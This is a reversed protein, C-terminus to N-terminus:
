FFLVMIHVVIDKSASVEVCSLFTKTGLGVTDGTKLKVSLLPTSSVTDYESKTPEHKHYSLMRDRLVFFRKTRMGASQKKMPWKLVWGSKAVARTWEFVINHAITYFSPSITQKLSGIIIHSKHFKSRLILTNHSVSYSTIDLADLDISCDGSLYMDDDQCMEDYESWGINSPLNTSSSYLCESRTKKVAFIVSSQRVEPVNSAKSLSFIYGAKSNNREPTVLNDVETTSKIPTSNDVDDTLDIDEVSYNPSGANGAEPMLFLENAKVLISQVDLVSNDWLSPRLTVDDDENSVVSQEIMVTFQSSKSTTDRELPLPSEMVSLSESNTAKRPLIDLLIDWFPVATKQDDAPAQSSSVADCFFVIKKEGYANSDSESGRRVDIFLAISVLHSEEKNDVLTPSTPTSEMEDNKDRLMCVAVVDIPPSVQFEGYVGCLIPVPKWSNQQLLKELVEYSAANYDANFIFTITTGCTFPLIARESSAFDTSSAAQAQTSKGKRNRSALITAEIIENTAVIQMFLEEFQSIRKKVLGKRHETQFNRVTYKKQEEYKSKENEKSDNLAEAWRGSISKRPNTDKEYLKLRNAEQQKYYIDLATVEEEEDFSLATAVESADYQDYKYGSSNVPVPKSAINITEKFRDTLVAKKALPPKLPKKTTEIGDKTSANVVGQWKESASNRKAKLVEEDIVPVNDKGDVGEQEKPSSVAEKWRELVSGRTVQKTESSEVADKRTVSEQWKESLSNRKPRVIDEEVAGIRSSYSDNNEDINGTSNTTSIENQLSDSPSIVSISSELVEDKIEEQSPSKNANSTSTLPSTAKSTTKSTNTDNGEISDSSTKAGVADQWKKSVSNRKSKLDDLSPVNEVPISGKVDGTQSQIVEAWRGSVSKRETRDIKIQKQKQAEQQKYFLKLATEEEDDDFAVSQDNATSSSHTQDDIAKTLPNVSNSVQFTTDTNDVQMSDCEQVGVANLNEYYQSNQFVNNEPAETSNESVIRSFDNLSINNEPNANMVHLDNIANENNNSTSVDTAVSDADM